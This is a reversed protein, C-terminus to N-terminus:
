VTLEFPWRTLPPEEVPVPVTLEVCRRPEEFEPLETFLLWGRRLEEVVVLVLRLEFLM